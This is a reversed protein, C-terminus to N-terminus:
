FPPDHSALLSSLLLPPFLLPLLLPLLSPTMTEVQGRTEFFSRPPLNPRFEALLKSVDSALSGLDRDQVNAYVDYLPQVDYHNIVAATTGRRLKAVNSLLHTGGPTGCGM